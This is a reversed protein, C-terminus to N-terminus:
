HYYTFRRTLTRAANCRMERCCSFAKLSGRTERVTVDGMKSFGSLDRGKELIMCFSFLLRFCLQRAGFCMEVDAVGFAV